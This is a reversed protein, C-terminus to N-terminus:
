CTCLWNLSEKQAGHDSAGLHSARTQVQAMRTAASWVVTKETPCHRSWCCTWVSGQSANLVSIGGTSCTHSMSPQCTWWLCFLWHGSCLQLSCEDLFPSCNMLLLDLCKHLGHVSPHSSANRGSSAMGRILHWTYVYIITNFVCM